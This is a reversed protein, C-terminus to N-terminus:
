DTVAAENACAILTGMYKTFTLVLLSLEHGRNSNLWQSFWCYWTVRQLRFFIDRGMQKSSVWSTGWFAFSM